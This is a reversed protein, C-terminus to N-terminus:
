WDQIEAIISLARRTCTSEIAQCSADKQVAYDLRPETLASFNMSELREYDRVLKNYSKDLLAISKMSDTSLFGRFERHLLILMVEDLTLEMFAVRFYISDRPKMRCKSYLQRRSPYNQLHNSSPPHLHNEGQNSTVISKGSGTSYTAQYTALLLDVEGKKFKPMDLHSDSSSSEEIELRPKKLRSELIDKNNQLTHKTLYSM